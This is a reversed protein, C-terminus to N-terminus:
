AGGALVRAIASGLPEMVLLGRTTIRTSSFGAGSHSSPQDVIRVQVCSRVMLLGTQAQGHGAAAGRQSDAGAAVSSQDTTGLVDGIQDASPGNTGRVVSLLGV